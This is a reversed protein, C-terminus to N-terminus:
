GNIRLVPGFDAPTSQTEQLQSLRQGTVLYVELARIIRQKDRNSIKEAFVPDIKKLEETILTISNFYNNSCPIGHWKEGFDIKDSLRSHKVEKHHNKASIGIEWDYSRRIALVDRVDGQIGQSDPVIELELNDNISLPNELRPELEFLHQVGARSALIYKLKDNNNFTHYCNKAVEYSNDKIITVNQNISLSKFLEILIAYEFAKGAETQTPMLLDGIM